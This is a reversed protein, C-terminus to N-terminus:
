RAGKEIKNKILMKTNREKAEQKAKMLRESVSEKDPIKGGCEEYREMAENYKLMEKAAKITSESLNQFTEIDRAGFM